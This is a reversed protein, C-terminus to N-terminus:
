SSLVKFAAKKGKRLAKRKEPTLEAIRQCDQSCTGRTASRCSDCQIFLAHCLDSACNDYHDAPAKCTYCKGLVDPTVTEAMREDFVFNKGIFKNELKERAVQHTYSIIGGHLQAVDTFGEHRLYASAKECRIGGTCYLLIKEQKKGALLQTVEHLEDSFTQSTPAIATTFKGIDSEYKNRMDVVLAGADIATNFEKASLHTGVNSMDYTGGSLNDAVIQRRVKIILKWFANKTEEVAFKFPVAAFEPITQLHRTFAEWQHVPVSMQANIGESAIYIRGLIDMGNWTRFLEDRLAQPNHIHVYRYWSVTTRKSQEHALKELAQTKNLTNALIAM